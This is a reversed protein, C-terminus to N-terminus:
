VVLTATAAVRRLSTGDRDHKRLMVIQTSGRDRALTLQFAPRRVLLFRKILSGQNRTHHGDDGVRFFRRPDAVARGIFERATVLHTL